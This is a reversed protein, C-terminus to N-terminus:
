GIGDLTSKTAMCSSSSCKSVPQNSRSSIRSTYNSTIWAAFLNRRSLHSENWRSQHSSCMIRIAPFVLSSLVSLSADHSTVNTSQVYVTFSIDVTLRSLLIPRFLLSVDNERWEEDDVTTAYSGGTASGGRLTGMDSDIETSLAGGRDDISRQSPPGFSPPVFPKPSFNSSHPSPLFSQQQVHTHQLRLQHKPSPAFSQSQDPFYQQNMSTTQYPSHLPSPHQSPPLSTNIAIHHNSVSNPQYPSLSNGTFQQFSRPSNQTSPTRSAPRSRASSSLSPREQDISSTSVFPRSARELPPSHSTSNSQQSLLAALLQSQTTADMSNIAIALQNSQGSPMNPSGTPFGNSQTSSWGRTESRGNNSGTDSANSRPKRFETVGPLNSQSLGSNLYEYGSNPTDYNSMAADELKLNAPSASNNKLYSEDDFATEGSGSSSYHGTSRDLLFQDPSMMNTGDAFASFEALLDGYNSGPGALSPNNNSLHNSQSLLEHIASGTTTDGPSFSNIASM